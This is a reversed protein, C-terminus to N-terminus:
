KQSLHQQSIEKFPQKLACNTLSMITTPAVDLRYLKAHTRGNM